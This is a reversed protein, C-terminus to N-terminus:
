DTSFQVTQNSFLLLLHSFYFQTRSAILFYKENLLESAKLLETNIVAILFELLQQNLHGQLCLLLLIFHFSYLYNM